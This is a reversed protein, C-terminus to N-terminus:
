VWAANDDAGKFKSIRLLSKLTKKQLFLPFKYFESCFLSTEEAVFFWAFIGSSCFRSFQCFSFDHLSLEQQCNQTKNEKPSLHFFFFFFLLFFIFFLLLMQHFLPHLANSPSLFFFFFITTDKLAELFQTNFFFHLTRKACSNKSTPTASSSSKRSNPVLSFFCCFFACSNKKPKRDQLLNTLIPHLSFARLSQPITQQLNALTPHLRFFGGVAISKWPFKRLTQTDFVNCSNPVLSFFCFFACYNPALLFIWECPDIEVPIKKPNPHQVSQLFQTALSVFASSNKPISQANFFIQSYQPHL